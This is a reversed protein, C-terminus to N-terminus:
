GLPMDFFFEPHWYGYISVEAVDEGGVKVGGARLLRLRGLGSILDDRLVRMTAGHPYDADVDVAPSGSWENFGTLFFSAADLRITERDEIHARLLIANVYFEAICATVIHLASYSRQFSSIGCDFLSLKCNNEDVGFLTGIIGLGELNPLGAGTPEAELELKLDFLRNANITLEGTGRFSPTGPNWFRGRIRRPLCLNAPNM